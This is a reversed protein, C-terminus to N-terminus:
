RQSSRASSSPPSSGPTAAQDNFLAARAAPSPFVCTVSHACGPVITLPHKGHALMAADYTAYHAARDLRYRGQQEAACNKELLRYATGPGTGTDLAGALYHIDAAVYAARAAAASRGLDAPLDDTGFKWDNSEPCSDDTAVPRTPDFYLFESPDAIVYRLRLSRVRVDLGPVHAFGVYHQVFQAGASFGAITVLRVQPYAHAISAVLADMAAFSTVPANLARAGDAWTSCHWLADTPAAAPVGRWHCKEDEPAPVQFIPAVILTGASLGAKAAADAAAAFTRTADRPYGHIAILARTLSKEGPPASVLYPLTAGGALSVAALTAARAALPACSLLLCLFTLARSMASPPPRQRTM